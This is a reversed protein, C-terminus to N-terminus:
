GGPGGAASPRLPVGPPTDRRWSRRYQWVPYTLAGLPIQLGYTLARFLLVAAAIQARLVDLSVNAHKHAAAYIGAILAVEVVGLGGPTVPAASLLRAFAFAAFISAGSAEANSVGIERLSVLLVTFLALHSVVTTATLALWRRRVLTVADDRFQAAKDGWGQVAPRLTRALLWSWARGMREGTAWALERRWMGLAFMGLAAALIALGVLAPVVLTISAGGGAALVGLAIIPLGLKLFSNWIGTTTLMLTIQSGTFGWSRLMKVAVGVAIAGGGPLTNAITTTSQNNIAAQALSLGPLAAMLQLWYTLLSFLFVAALLVLDPWSLATMTHWLSSYSAVKPLVLAFVVVVLLAPGVYRLLKKWTM